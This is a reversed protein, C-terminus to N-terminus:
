VVSKRDGRLEGREFPVAAYVMETGMTESYRHSTGWGRRRAARIEPREAHNDLSALAKTAVSSDGLVRGSADIITIRAETAAHLRESLTETRATSSLKPTTELLTRATRAHRLLEHEIRDGLWAHLSHELYLGSVLAVVGMLGLFAVVLKGRVGFRLRRPRARPEDRAM